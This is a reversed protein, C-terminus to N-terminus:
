SEIFNPLEIGEQMGMVNTELYKVTDKKLFSTDNEAWRLFNKCLLHM